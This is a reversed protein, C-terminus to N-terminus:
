VQWVSNMFCADVLQGIGCLGATFFWIIGTCWKGVYCRHLGFLGFFCGLWLLWAVGLQRVPQYSIVTTQPASQPQVSVTQYAYPHDEQTM